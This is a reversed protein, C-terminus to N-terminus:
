EVELSSVGDGDGFLDLYSDSKATRKVSLVATIIGIFATGCKYIYDFGEDRWSADFWNYSITNDSSFMITGSFRLIGYIIGTGLAILCFLGVTKVVLRVVKNKQQLSWHAVVFCFIGCPLAIPLYMLATCVVLKLM